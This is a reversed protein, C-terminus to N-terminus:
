WSYKGRAFKYLAILLNIPYMSLYLLSYILIHSIKSQGKRRGKMAVLCFLTFSLGLFFLAVGFFNLVSPAFSLDQLRLVATSAYLSYKTSLYSVLIRRSILYLFLGFGFLGLFLSVSFLPIIFAGLMGKRFILGKYRALTQLGGINWRIRQKWWASFKNPTASYVETALCMRATYGYSLLRWVIEIDQTMNKTDFLGVKILDKKRYLAFPGPTVYVSDVCDLLKRTFAIVGYEIDQLKQILVRPSKSLVSCTVAGVKKDKQLFGIM